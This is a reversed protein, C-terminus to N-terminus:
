VTGDPVLTRSWSLLAMLVLAGLGSVAYVEGGYKWHDDAAADHDGVSDVNLSHNVAHNAASADFAFGLEVHM